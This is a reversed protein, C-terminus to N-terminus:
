KPEPSRALGSPARDGSIRSPEPTLVRTPLPPTSPKKVKATQQPHEQIFVTTNDPIDEQVWANAGISM